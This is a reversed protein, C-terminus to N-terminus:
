SGDTYPRNRTRPITAHRTTASCERLARAAHIAPPAIATAHIPNNNENECDLKADKITTTSTSAVSAHRQRAAAASPRTAATSTLAPTAAGRTRLVIM